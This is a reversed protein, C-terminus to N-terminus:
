NANRAKENWVFNFSFQLAPAQGRTPGQNVERVQPLSRLRQITQLLAQSNRATGTCAITRLDRIEVTKATVSGDEPFAQTLGRLISLGRVSEDVWPNYQRIKAELDKLQDVTSADKKVQAELSWLRCQQYFFLGGVVVAVAAAAAVTNRLRASSYRSSFQQWASVRPPLFEFPTARGTLLGVGLSFAPSVTTDAPFQVGLENPAYRAVADAKLGAAELRLDLEDVLQQALDRPGFVRLTRISERLEAPLQGLTIRTERAVLDARLVRGGAETDIAGELARLAAIGGGCTVQLSVQREGIALALVGSPATAIPQLATIGLAFSVPKLKAARLAQDLATLHNKPIGVLLAQQKKSPTQCCSTGLQLTQVDCPFGREAELQLFGPVDAAPIAPVEVHTTLAWKSPLGVVCQRERVQAADLHNRLERGVLEPDNTLPDLSLTVSFSKLVQCSGNTRRLVVGDLRSGDLTLALVSTLHTRKSRKLKSLDIM